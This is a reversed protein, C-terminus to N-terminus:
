KDWNSHSNEQLTRHWICYADPINEWRLAEVSKVPMWKGFKGNYEGFQLLKTKSVGIIVTSSNLFHPAIHLFTFSYRVGCEEDTKELSHQWFHQAKRSSVLVSRYELELEQSNEGSIDVFKMTKTSAVSVTIIESEPNFLPEDDRHPPIFHSGSKYRTILCSNVVSESVYHM